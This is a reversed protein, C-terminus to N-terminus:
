AIEMQVTLTESGADYSADVVADKQRELRTALDEGDQADDVGMPYEITIGNYFSSDIQDVSTLDWVQGWSSTDSLGLRVFEDKLDGPAGSFDGLSEASRAQWRAAVEEVDGFFDYTNSLHASDTRSGFNATVGWALLALIVMTVGLEVLTFGRGQRVPNSFSFPTIATALKM